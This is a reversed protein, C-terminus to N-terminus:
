TNSIDEFHKLKIKDTEKTNDKKNKEKGNKLHM